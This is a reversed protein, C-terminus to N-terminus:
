SQQASGLKRYMTWKGLRLSQRDTGSESGQPKLHRLPKVPVWSLNNLSTTPQVFHRFTSFNMPNSKATTAMSVAVAEM